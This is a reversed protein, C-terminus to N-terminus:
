RYCFITWALLRLAVFCGLSLGFLRFLALLSWFLLAFRTFYSDLLLYLDEIAHFVLFGNIYTDHSLLSSLILVEDSYIIAM